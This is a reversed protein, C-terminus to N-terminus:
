FPSTCTVHLEGDIEVEEFTFGQTSAVLKIAESSYNQNLKQLWAANHTNSDYDSIIAAITGDAQRAFGIDNSATGVDKKRIIVEAKQDRQDNQYGYLNQAEDHCEIRGKWRSVQRELANILAKKDTIKTKLTSYHSM